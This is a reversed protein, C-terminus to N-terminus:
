TTSSSEADQDPTKRRCEIEDNIRERWVRPGRLFLRGLRVPASARPLDAPPELEVAVTEPPPPAIRKAEIQAKLKTHAITVRTIASDYASESMSQVELKGLGRQAAVHEWIQVDSANRNNILALVVPDVLDKLDVPEGRALDTVNLREQQLPSGFWDEFDDYVADGRELVDVYGLEDVRRIAEAAVTDIDGPKIHAENPALRNPGLILRTVLNDAQHAISESTCYERLPLQAFRAGPYPEWQAHMEAPWGRWFTYQSLFRARPERLICVVDAPEFAELMTSITWHGEMYLYSKLEEPSGLFIPENVEALRPHDGFLHRDFSWPVTDQSSYYSSVAARISTGAAKPLHLYALRPRM